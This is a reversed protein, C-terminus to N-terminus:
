GAGPGNDPKFFVFQNGANFVCVVLAGPHQMDSLFARCHQFLKILCCLAYACFHQYVHRWFLQGDKFLHQIGDSRTGGM